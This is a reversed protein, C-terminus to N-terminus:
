SWLVLLLPLLMLAIAWPRWRLLTYWARRWPNAFYRPDAFMGARRRGGADYVWIHWIDNWLSYFDRKFHIEEDPKIFYFDLIKATLEKSALSM